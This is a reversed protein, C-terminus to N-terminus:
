SLGEGEEEEEKFTIVGNKYTNLQSIERQYGYFAKEIYFLHSWLYSARSTPLLPPLQTNQGNSKRVFCSLNWLLQELDSM